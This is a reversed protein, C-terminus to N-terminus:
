SVANVASKEVQARLNEGAGSRHHERLRAPNNEISAENVASCEATM